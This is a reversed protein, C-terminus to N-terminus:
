IVDKIAEILLHQQIPKAIIADFGLQQYILRTEIMQDGSHIFIPTNPKHKKIETFADIGTMNPMHNDLIILDYDESIAKAVSEQGDVCDEVTAGLQAILSRLVFRNTPEDDVVLVRKGELLRRNMFATLSKQKYTKPREDTTSLPLRIHISTGNHLQSDAWIQGKFLHVLEKTIALGLGTGGFRRTKSMDAQEFRNFMRKVQEKDMGIGDDQITFLLEETTEKISLTITGSDTFKIANGLINRLIQTLRTDDVMRVPHQMPLDGHWELTLDKQEALLNFEELLHAILHNLDVPEILLEVKGAELKSQDLIEDILRLLSNMSRTGIDATKKIKHLDNSNQIIQLAGYIGNMPTRLEHSMNSLFQSKTAAIQKEHQYKPQNRTFFFHVSWTFGMLLTTHILTFIFKKEAPTTDVLDGLVMQHYLIYAAMVVTIIVSYFGARLNLMTTMMLPGLILWGAALSVFGGTTYATIFASAHAAIFVVAEWAAVHQNRQIFYCAVLTLFGSPLTIYSRIDVQSLTTVLGGGLFFIGMAMIAIVRPQIIKNM